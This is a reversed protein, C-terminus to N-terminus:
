SPLAASEVDVAITRVVQVWLPRTLGFWQLTWVAPVGWRVGKFFVAAPELALRDFPDGFFVAAAALM